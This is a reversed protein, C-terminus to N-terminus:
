LVIVFLTYFDMFRILIFIANRLFITFYLIYISVEIGHAMVFVFLSHYNDASKKITKSNEILFDRLDKRSKDTSECVKFGLKDRFFTKIKKCDVETGLGFFVCM